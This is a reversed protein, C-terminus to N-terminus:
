GGWLPECVKPLGSFALFVRPQDGFTLNSASTCMITSESMALSLAHCVFVDGAQPADHSGESKLAKAIGIVIQM